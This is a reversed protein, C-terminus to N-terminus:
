KRTVDKNLIMNIEAATVEGERIIRPPHETVDIVTSGTGGKLNGADLIIGSKKIIDPSLNKFQSCGPQGSINASTGTIPGDVEKVLAAAVPNEPIRIGIKGTGATLNNPIMNKANFIITIRGPWFAEILREADSPIEQVLDKLITKNKILLLLPKRFPRKKITFISDVASKNFADAALGYLCWTPFTVVGGERIITAAEQIIRAQPLSPDITKINSFRPM